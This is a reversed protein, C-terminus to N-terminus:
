NAGGAKPVGLNPFLVGIINNLGTAVQGAKGAEMGGQILGGATILNSSAIGSDTLNTGAGAAANAGVTLVKVFEDFNSKNMNFAQMFDQANMNFRDQFIQQNQEFLANAEKVLQDRNEYLTTWLQLEESNLQQRFALEEDFTLNQETIKEQFQQSRLALDAQNSAQNENFLIGRKAAELDFQQLDEGQLQNRFALASSFNFNEADLQQRFTQDNATLSVKDRQSTINQVREANTLAVSQARDSLATLTGGSLLDGKAAASNEIARASENQLFKLTPDNPDFPNFKNVEPTPSASVGGPTVDVTGAAGTQNLDPLGETTLAGVDQLGSKDLETSPTPGTGLIPTTQVPLDGPLTADPVPVNDGEFTFTGKAAAKGKDIFPQVLDLIKDRTEEQFDIGALVGELQKKASAELGNINIAATATAGIAGVLKEVLDKPMSTGGSTPEGGGTQPPNNIIIPSIGTDDGNTSDGSQQGTDTGGSGQDLSGGTEDETSPEQTVIKDITDSEPNKDTSPQEGIVDVGPTETTTDTAQQEGPKTANPDFVGGSPAGAPVGVTTGSGQGSGGGLIGGTAPDVAHFGGDAGLEWLQGKILVPLNILGIQLNGRSNLKVGIGPINAPDITKLIFDILDGAKNLANDIFDIEPKSLGKKFVEQSLTQVDEKLMNSIESSIRDSVERDDIAGSDRARQIIDELNGESQINDLDGLISIKDLQLQETEAQQVAARVQPDNELTPNQKILQDLGQTGELGGIDAILQDEVGQLRNAEQTAAAQRDIRTQRNRAASVATAVEPDSALEPNNALLSDLGTSGPLAGIQGLLQTKQQALLQAGNDDPPNDNTIQDIVQNDAANQDPQAPLLDQLNNQEIISPDITNIDVSGNEINRRITGPIDSAVLAGRLLEIIVPADESQIREQTQLSSPFGGGGIGSPLHFNDIPLVSPTEANIPPPGILPPNITPPGSPGPSSPAPTIILNIIGTEETPTDTAPPPPPTTDPAGIQNILSNETQGLNLNNLDITGGGGPLSSLDITPLTFPFGM